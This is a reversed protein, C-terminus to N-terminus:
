REAAGTHRGNGNSRSRPRKLDELRGRLRPRDPQRLDLADWPLRQSKARLVWSRLVGRLLPGLSLREVLGGTGLVWEEVVVHEGDRRTHIEELRGVFRGTSDFVKRGLLGEVHVDM